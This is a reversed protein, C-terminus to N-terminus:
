KWAPPFPSFLILGTLPSQHICAYLLDVQTKYVPLPSVALVYQSVVLLSSQGEFVTVEEEHCSAIGEKVGTSIKEGINM